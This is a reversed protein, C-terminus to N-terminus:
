QVLVLNAAALHAIRRGFPSQLQAAPGQGPMGRTFEEKQALNLALDEAQAEEIRVKLAVVVKAEALNTADEGKEIKSLLEDAWQIEPKLFRHGLDRVGDGTIRASWVGRPEPCM